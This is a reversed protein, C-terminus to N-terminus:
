QVTESWVSTDGSEFGDAFVVEVPLCLDTGAVAEARCELNDWLYRNVADTYPDAGAGRWGYPDTRVGDRKLTFHLHSLGVEGVRQGREVLEGDIDEFASLHLYHSTYGGGHDIVLEGNAGGVVTATGGAAAHVDTGNDAPFDHGTHGDYALYSGGTYHGNVVFPTGNADQRFAYLDGCGNNTVFIGGYQAEGQEGTYATVVDDPCNGGTTMHHDFVSSVTTTGPKREALPFSLSFPGRVPWIYALWTEKFEPLPKGDETSVIFAKSPGTAWTTSSWYGGQGELQVNVFPHDDPLGDPYGKDVLSLLELVNPLRWETYGYNEHLGLNTDRVYALATDWDVPVETLNADKTWTLWTLKDTVVGAVSDLFRAEPLPVGWQLDGDDGPHYSTTQGTQPINVPYVPDPEGNVGGRVPWFARNDVINVSGFGPLVLFRVGMRPTFPPHNITSSRYVGSVVVDQFPHNQPLADTEGDFDFLSTLERINSLRWDTHGYNPRVGANMDAVFELSRTYSREGGETADRTWMLGTCEDTVTGDGHDIFRPEPCATGAQLEGDQGTGACPIETGASDWCRVQGTKPLNILQAEASGLLVVGLIALFGYVRM